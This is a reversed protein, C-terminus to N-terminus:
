TKKKRRKWKSGRSPLAMQAIMWRIAQRKARLCPILPWRLGHDGGPVELLEVGPRIAAHERAHAVPCVPDREGHVLLVPPPADCPVSIPSAADLHEPDFIDELPDPSTQEIRRLDAPAGLAVVCRVLDPRLLGAMLALHGGASHGWLAIRERDVQQHHLFDIAAFVDELQAPWRHEPALRYDIAAAMVGRRTMAPALSEFDEWSGSKWGGGHILLVAPWGDRPCLDNLEWIHMQQALDGADRYDIDGWQLMDITRVRGTIRRRVANVQRLVPLAATPVPLLPADAM